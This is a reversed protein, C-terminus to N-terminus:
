PRGAFLDPRRLRLTQVLTLTKLDTLEGRDALGALDNLKMEIVEIEEHEEALGGGVGVRDSARYSALFLAVRETLIGPSPWVAAVPELEGLRLGAEELAERRATIAADGDDIMGAIAELLVTERAELFVPARLQRVLLSTRRMADYPLVCVARGHEVIERRMIRGDGLRFSVISLTMWGAYGIQREVIDVSNMAEEGRRDPGAVPRFYPEHM